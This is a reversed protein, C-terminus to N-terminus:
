KGWQGRGVALKMWKWLSISAGFKLGGLQLMAGPPAAVPM